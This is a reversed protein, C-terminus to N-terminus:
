GGCCYLSGRWIIPVCRVESGVWPEPPDAQRTSCAGPGRAPRRRVSGRRLILAGFGSALLLWTSPEPVASGSPFYGPSYELEFDKAYAFSPDIEITPDVIAFVGSSSQGSPCSPISLGPLCAVVYTGAQAEKTIPDPEGIPLLGKTSSSFFPTDPQGLNCDAELPTLPAILGLSVSAEAWSAGSGCTAVGTAM